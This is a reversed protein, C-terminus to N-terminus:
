TEIDITMDVMNGFRIKVSSIQMSKIAKEQRWM